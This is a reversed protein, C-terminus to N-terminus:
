TARTTPGQSRNKSVNGVGVEHASAGSASTSLSQAPEAIVAPGLGQVVRGADDAIFETARNGAFHM